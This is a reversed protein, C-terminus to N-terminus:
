FWTKNKYIVYGKGFEDILDKEEVYARYWQVLSLIFTFVIAFSNSTAVSLGLFFIVSGVYIPHRIKTYVGHKVLKKPMALDHYSKGLSIVGLAWLIFGLGAIVLGPYFVTEWNFYLLVTAVLGIIISDIFRTELWKM